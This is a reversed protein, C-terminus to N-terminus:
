TAGLLLKGYLLLLVVGEANACYTLTMCQKTSWGSLHLVDDTYKQRMAEVIVGAISRNLTFGTEDSNNIAHPKYLM